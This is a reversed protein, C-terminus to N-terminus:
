FEIRNIKAKTFNFIFYDLQSKKDPTMREFQVCCKKIRLYNSHRTESKIFDDMIIRCLLDFYFFGVHNVANVLLPGGFADREKNSFDFYHFALGGKSIDTIRGTRFKGLEAIARHVVEFRPFTRRDIQNMMRMKPEATMMGQFKRTYTEM